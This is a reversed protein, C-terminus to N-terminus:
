WGSHHFISNCPQLSYIIFVDDPNWFHGRFAIEFAHSSDFMPIM